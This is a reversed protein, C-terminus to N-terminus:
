RSTSCVLNTLRWCTTSTYISWKTTCSDKRSCARCCSSWNWLRTPTPTSCRTSLLTTRRSAKWNKTSQLSSRLILMWCSARFLFHWIRRNEMGSRGYSTAGVLVRVSAEGIKRSSRRRRKARSCEPSKSHRLTAWGITHFSTTSARPM